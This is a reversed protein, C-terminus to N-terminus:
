IANVMKQIQSLFTKLVKIKKNSSLIFVPLQQDYFMKIQSSNIKEGKLIVLKLKDYLNTKNQQDYYKLKQELLQYQNWPDKDTLSVFFLIIKTREAQRLFFITHSSLGPLDVFVIPSSFTQPKVLFRRPYATPVLNEKKWRDCLDLLFSTKGSARFGVIAATSAWKM